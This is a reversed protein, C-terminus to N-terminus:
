RFNTHKRVKAEEPIELKQVFVEIDSAEIARGRKMEKLKEYPEPIGYRRMVTQVAEALVEYRNELDKQVVAEDM